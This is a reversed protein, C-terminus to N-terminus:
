ILSEQLHKALGPAHVKVALYREDLPLEKLRHYLFTIVM